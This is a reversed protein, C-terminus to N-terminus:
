LTQRQGCPVSLSTGLLNHEFPKLGEKWRTSHGVEGPVPGVAEDEQGEDVLDLLAQDWGYVFQVGGVLVAVASQGDAGGGGVELDWGDQSRVVQAAAGDVLQADDGVEGVEALRCLGHQELPHPVGYWM